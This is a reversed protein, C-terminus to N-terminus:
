PIIKINYTGNRLPSNGSERFHRNSTKSLTWTFVFLGQM